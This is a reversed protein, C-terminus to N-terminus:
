VHRQIKKHVEDRYELGLRKEEKEMETRDEEKPQRWRQPIEEARVEQQQMRVMMKTRRQLGEAASNVCLRNQGLM